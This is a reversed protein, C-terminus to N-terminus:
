SADGLTTLKQKLLWYRVIGADGFWSLSGAYSVVGAAFAQCNIWEEAQEYTDGVFLNKEEDGGYEFVGFQDPVEQDIGYKNVADQRARAGAMVEASHETM